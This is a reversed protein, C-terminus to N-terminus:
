VGHGRTAATESFVMSPTRSNDRSPEAEALPRGAGAVHFTLHSDM